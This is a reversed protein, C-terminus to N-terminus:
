RITAAATRSARSSAHRQAWAAAEAAPVPRSIVFGQAVHCGLDALVRLTEPREVGEAVVRLGLNGALEIISRVISRDSRDADMDSVFSRDIKIERVPLRKLYALSSYGTGFDDLSIRHGLDALTELVPFVEDARAMVTETIELDLLPEDAGTLSAAALEQPLAADLCRVSVNIAVPLALGAARWARAQAAATRAVWLTLPRILGTQEALGIFEAPGLLGLRPHQWRVLAEVGAPRGTELELKPQYHLVMQGGDIARRLEGARALQEGGPEAIAPDHVDSAVRADTARRRAADARRLLVAASDGHGPHCAIGARARVDLELDGLTIAPDLADLMRGTREIADDRGAGDLIAVFDDAGLHGVLDERGAAASLRRAVECLVADGQAHGLGDNIERFDVVNLAVVGLPRGSALLRDLEGTVHTRNPLGTLSDHRARHQLLVANHAGRQIAAVPFALLPLLSAHELALELVVPAFAALVATSRVQFSLDTRVYELPHKGDVLAPPVGALLVNCILFAAAAAATAFVGQVSLYESSGASDLNAHALALVAAAGAWSLTFQAINFAIKLPARRRLGDALLLALAHVIAVTALGDMLLVVLGFTTSLSAETEHGPVRVPFLEAALIGVLLIVLVADVHEITGRGDHMALIGLAGFGLAIVTRVYTRLADLGRAHGRHLARRILHRSSAGVRRRIPAGDALSSAPDGGSVEPRRASPTM